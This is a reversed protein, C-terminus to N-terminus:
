KKSIGLPVSYHERVHFTTCPGFRIGNKGVRSNRSRHKRTKEIDRLYKSKKPGLYPTKVRPRPGHHLNEFGSRSSKALDYLNRARAFVSLRHSRRNRSGGLLPAILLLWFLLHDVTPSALTWQTVLFFDSFCSQLTDSVVSRLPGEPGGRGAWPLDRARGRAGDGRQLPGRRQGLLPVRGDAARLAGRDRRVPARAGALLQEEVQRACM